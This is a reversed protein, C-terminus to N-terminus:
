ELISTHLAGISPKRNDTNKVTVDFYHEEKGQINNNSAKEVIFSVKKGIFKMKFNKEAEESLKRLQLARWAKKESSVQQKMQAASTKEHASFPFVHLKSFAIERIFKETQSFEQDTEGPFGVIVDTTIAIDDMLDRAM